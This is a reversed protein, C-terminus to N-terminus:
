DSGLMGLQARWHKTVARVLSPQGEMLSKVQWQWFGLRMLVIVGQTWAAQEAASWAVTMEVTSLVHSPTPWGRLMLLETVEAATEELVLAALTLLLLLLTLAAVVVESVGVVVEEEVVNEELELVVAGEDVVAITGGTVDAVAAGVDADADDALLEVTALAVGAVYVPAAAPNCPPGPPTAAM